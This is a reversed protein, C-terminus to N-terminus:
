DLPQPAIWETLCALAQEKNLIIKLSQRKFFRFDGSFWDYIYICTHKFDNANSFQFSKHAEKYFQQVLVKALSCIEEYILSLWKLKNNPTILAIHKTPM